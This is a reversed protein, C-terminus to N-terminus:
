KVLLISLNSSYIREEQLDIHVDDDVVKHGGVVRLLHPGLLDFFYLRVLDDPGALIYFKLDVKSIEKM